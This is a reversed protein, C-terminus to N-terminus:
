SSGGNQTTGNAEYRKAIIFALVLGIGTSTIILFPIWEEVGTSVEILLGLGLGIGFCITVIGLKLITYPNRRRKLYELMQEYSLGKEIMMQKEKSRFYIYSVWIIGSVLFFVVPVLIGALM